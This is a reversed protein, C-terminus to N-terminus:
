RTTLPLGAPRTIRHAQRLSYRSRFRYLAFEFIGQPHDAPRSARDEDSPAGVASNVGFPLRAPGPTPERGRCTALRGLHWVAVWDPQARPGHLGGPNGGASRHRLGSSNSGDRRRDRGRGTVRVSQRSLKAQPPHCCRAIPQGQRERVACNQRRQSVAAAM